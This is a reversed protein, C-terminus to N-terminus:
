EKYNVYSQLQEKVSSNLTLDNIYIDFSTTLKYMSRKCTSQLMSLIENVVKDESHHKKLLTNFKLLKDLNQKLSLFTEILAPIDKQVIGYCDETLSLAAISSVAEMAWILSQSDFLIHKLKYKEHEGFVYIILSKSLLYNVFKQWKIKVFKSFSEIITCEKSKDGTKVNELAEAILMNRMNYRYEVNYNNKNNNIHSIVDNKNSVISNLDMSFIRFYNFFKQVIFNWTYPHGGPQSLMYIKSRGIKNTQALIFLDLYALHHIIPIKESSLAEELMLDTKDKDSYRLQHLKFSTWQTLYIKYLLSTSNIILSFILQFSWSYTILPFSLLKSFNDLPISEVQIGIMSLIVNGYAGFFYYIIIFYSVSWFSILMLTPLMSQVGKMFQSFKSQPMFPFKLYHTHLFNTQIFLYLGSWISELLHFYYKEILCKGYFSKCNTVKFNMKEDNILLLIWMLNFSAMINLLALLLNSMTCINHFLSFRNTPYTPYQFYYKNSIIGQLAIISTVIIFYCWFKPSIIMKWTNFLCLNYDTTFNVMLILFVILLFQIVIGSLTAFIIRNILLTKWKNFHFMEGVKNVKNMKAPICQIM